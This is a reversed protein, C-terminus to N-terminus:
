VVTARPKRHQLEQRIGKDVEELAKKCETQVNAFHGILAKVISHTSLRYIHNLRAGIESSTLSELLHVERPQLQIGKPVRGAEVCRSQFQHHHAAQLLKGRNRLKNKRAEELSITRVKSNNESSTGQIEPVITNTGLMNLIEKSISMTGNLNESVQDSLM